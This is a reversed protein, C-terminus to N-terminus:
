PRTDARVRDAVQRLAAPDGDSIVSYGIHRDIWAYGDVARAQILRMPEPLGIRMPQLYVTIRNGGADRYLLMAAPGYLATLVRGGMLHYGMPGLDPVTVRRGLKQNMWAVLEARNDSSIEVPRDADNAFVHYATAAEIGLRAIETLPHDGRAIWGGLAGFGLALVLSAATVSRQVARSAASRRLGAGALRAMIADREAADGRRLERRLSEAQDIWDRVRQGQEPNEALYRAVVARRTEDLRGDVFAHLDAEGVAPRTDTM